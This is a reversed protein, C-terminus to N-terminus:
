QDNWLVDSITLASEKKAWSCPAVEFAEWDAFSVLRENWSDKEIEAYLDERKYIWSSIIKNKFQSKKSQNERRSFTESTKRSENSDKSSQSRM